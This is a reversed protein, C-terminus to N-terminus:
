DLFHSLPSLAIVHHEYQKFFFANLTNYTVFTVSQCIEVSAPELQMANQAICAETPPSLPVKAEKAISKKRYSQQYLITLTSLPEQNKITLSQSSM